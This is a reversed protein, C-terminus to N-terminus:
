KLQSIYRGNL